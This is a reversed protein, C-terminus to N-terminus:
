AGPALGGFPDVWHWSSAAVLFRLASWPRGVGRVIVEGSRPESIPSDRDPWCPWTVARGGGRDVTGGLDALSRTAQGMGCGVELVSSLRNLGTVNVLDKFLEAPYSPWRRDYLGAVENFVRGLDNREVGAM